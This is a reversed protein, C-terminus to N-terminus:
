GPCHRSSKSESIPMPTDILQLEQASCTFRVDPTPQVDVSDTESEQVSFSTSGILFEEGVELAFEDLAEGRFFIKNSARPYRRVFLKGERWTLTAHVRSIFKDWPVVWTSETPRSGLTVTEPPLEHLWQHQPEEGRSWTLWQDPGGGKPADLHYIGMPRPCLHWLYNYEGSDHTPCNTEPRRHVAPYNPRTKSILLGWGIRRLPAYSVAYDHGDIPDRYSQRIGELHGGILDRYVTTREWTPPNKGAVPEIEKRHKHVLCHYRHNLLVFFGRHIKEEYLWRYIKDLDITVTLVGLVTKRDSDYIPASINIGSIRDVSRTVYPQSIYPAKIAAYRRGEEYRDGTGNFWDRWSYNKGWNKPDLPYNVLVM